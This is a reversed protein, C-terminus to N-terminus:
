GLEQYGAGAENPYDWPGGEPEWQPQAYVSYGGHLPYQQLLPPYQPPLQPVPPLQPSMMSVVHAVDLPRSCISGAGPSTPPSSYKQCRGGGLRYPAAAPFAENGQHGFQLDENWSVPLAQIRHPEASSLIM